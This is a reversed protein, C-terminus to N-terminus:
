ERGGVPLAGGGLDRGDKAKEVFVEEGFGRVADVFADAEADDSATIAKGGCKSLGDGIRLGRGGAARTEVEPECDVIGGAVGDVGCGAAEIFDSFEGLLGEAVNEGFHEAATGRV